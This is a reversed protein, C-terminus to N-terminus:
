GLLALSEGQLRKLTGSVRSVIGAMQTAAQKSRNLTSFEKMESKYEIGICTTHSKMSSIFKERVGAQLDTKAAELQTSDNKKDVAYTALKEQAPAWKGAPMLAPIKHATTVQRHVPRYLAVTGAKEAKYKRIPKSAFVARRYVNALKKNAAGTRAGVEEAPLSLAAVKQQLVKDM